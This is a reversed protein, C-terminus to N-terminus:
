YYYCVFMDFAIKPKINLYIYEARPDFLAEHLSINWFLATVYPLMQM